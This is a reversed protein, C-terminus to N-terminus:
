RVSALIIIMILVSVLYPVKLSVEYTWDKVAMNLVIMMTVMMTVDDDNDELGIDDNDYTGYWVLGNDDGDYDNENDPM